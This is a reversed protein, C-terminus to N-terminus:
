GQIGTNRGDVYIPHAPQKLQTPENCNLSTTVCYNTVVPGYVRTETLLGLGVFGFDVTLRMENYSVAALLGITRRGSGTLLPIGAAILSSGSGSQVTDGNNLLTITMGN